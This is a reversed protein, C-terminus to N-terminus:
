EPQILAGFPAKQGRQCLWLASPDSIFGREGVPTSLSGREGIRADGGPPAAAPPAVTIVATGALSNDSQDAVTLTQDGVTILTTMGAFTHAGQDGATFTYDAPLNVGPDTDSTTFTVTGTYGVAIHGYADFATVTIDFPQGSTVQTPASIELQTAPGPQVEIAGIDIVGDVVRPYGPGRQDWESADSPDGADVAPSGPLPMMTPTPGGNDQLSGLLPNLPSDSTGTLDSDVLGAAGTANGILNHGQSSVTAQIDPGSDSQNLAVLTNQLTLVPNGIGGYIGGGGSFFAGSATNAAITCSILSVTGGGFTFIGGGQSATNDAITDNTLTVTNQNFLGGGQGVVGTVTNAAITAGTITLSGSNLIGGGQGAMNGEVISDAITMTGGNQIGGGQSATNEEITCDSLTLTGSNFVGAGQSAKNNMFIDNTLTAQGSNSLGGGFTGKGNQITLNMLTATCFFGVDFVRDLARGDIITTAASDGVITVNNTVLGRGINLDGSDDGNSGSPAITLLYSGATLNITNNGGLDNTAMIASRLSINGNADLGSGDRVAEVTDTFPNVNFVAPAMRDELAEL